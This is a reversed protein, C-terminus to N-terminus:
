EAEIAAAPRGMRCSERRYVLFQSTPTQTQLPQQNRDSAPPLPCPARTCARDTWPRSRPARPCAAPCPRTPPGVGCPLRTSFPRLCERPRLRPPPPVPAPQATPPAPPAPLPVPARQPRAPLRVPAPQRLVHLCETWSRYCEAAATLCTSVVAAGVWFHLCGDRFSM